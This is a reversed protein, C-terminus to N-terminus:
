KAGPERQLQHILRKLPTTIIPVAERRFDLKNPLSGTTKIKLLHQSIAAPLDQAFHPLLQVIRSWIAYFEFDANKGDIDVGGFGGLSIASGILDIHPIEIRKDRIQFVAHAEEFATRDPTRLNLVKLLDLLLPLRAIQGSPLNFTGDVDIEVSDPGSVGRQTRSCILLQISALGRLEVDAGLGNIRAVEELKIQLASISIEFRLPSDIILRGEAVLDGGYIRGFVNEFKLMEPQAPDIFFHAQMQTIPQEYILCREVSIAGKVVGFHDGLYEGRCSIQGHIQKCEIGITANADALNVIGRWYIRPSTTRNLEQPETTKTQETDSQNHRDLSVILEQLDIQIKGELNLRKFVERVQAPVARLFDHDISLQDVTLGLLKVWTSQDEGLIIEGGTCSIKSYGHWGQCPFLEIKHNAYRLSGTLDSLEYPFFRPKIKLGSFSLGVALRGIQFTGSNLTQTEHTPRPQLHAINARLELRGTPQLAQWTQDLGIQDLAMKLAHDLKVQSGEIEITLLDGEHTTRNSGRLKVLGGDHTGQFNTFSWYGYEHCMQNQESGELEHEDGQIPIFNVINLQGSVNELPYPFVDYSLRCEHFNIIYKSKIVPQAPTSVIEAKFDAYGVANFSQAIARYKGPLAKLLTENLPINEGSINLYLTEANSGQVVGNIKVPQKSAYGLLNFTYSLQQNGSADIEIIGTVDHLPYNFQEAYAMCIGQPIVRVQRQIKGDQRSLRLQIAILGEPRFMQNLRQVPSPLREFLEHKLELNRVTLYLSDVWAEEPCLEDNSHTASRSPNLRARLEVEMKKASASMHEITLQGDRLRMALNVKELPEPLWEHKFVGDQIWLSLDHKLDEIQFTTSNPSPTYSLALDIKAKGSCESLQESIAQWQSRSLQKVCQQISIEEITITAQFQRTQQNISGKIKATRCLESSAALEVSIDGHEQPLISLAVDDIEVRSGKNGDLGDVIVISGQQMVITPLRDGSPKRDSAILGDV